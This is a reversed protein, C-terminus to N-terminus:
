STLTRTPENGEWGQAFSPYVDSKGTEFGKEILKADCPIGLLLFLSMKKSDSHASEGVRSRKLTPCTVTQLREM